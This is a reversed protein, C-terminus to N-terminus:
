IYETWFRDNIARWSHLILVDNCKMYQHHPDYLIKNVEGPFNNEAFTEELDDIFHTCNLSKIREIKRKRTSEFFVLDRKLGLGSDDFFHHQEMWHLAADRLNTHTPDYGAFTTKHSVIYVKISKKQCFHFFETVGDILEAEHMKPGYVSGQIKQWEIEGDPLRRVADRIAKKGKPNSPEILKLELAADFLVEDYSVITNDLDVGIPGTIHKDSIKVEGRTGCLTGM